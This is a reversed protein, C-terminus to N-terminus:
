SFLIIVTTRELYVKRKYTKEKQKTQKAM